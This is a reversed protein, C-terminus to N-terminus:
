NKVSDNAIITKLRFIIENFDVFEFHPINHKQCYELLDRGIKAFVIDAEKAGCRDSLGDGIYVIPNHKKRDRQVHYGKCNACFGCGSEFYPFESKIQDPQIFILHNARVKLIPDLNHNKLIRDVYFDLGDSVIEIEIDKTQCFKVFEEFYRDLEQEDVFKELQPKTVRTIKCEQILCARSSIKGEKWTKVIDFVRKDAFTRLLFNGVDNKAATGDFDCFIKM